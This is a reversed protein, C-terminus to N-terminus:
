KKLIKLTSVESGANMRLIYMGTGLQHGSDDAGNWSISHSGSPYSGYSLTAVKQGVVSYLSIEVEADTDLNFRITAFDVVPVPFVELNSNSYDFQETGIVIEGDWRLDGLQGSTSSAAMLPTNKFGFDFPEGAIDFAPPTLNADPTAYWDSVMTYNAVPGNTFMVDEALMTAGTGAEDVYAQAAMNFMPTVIISDPQQDAYGADTFISNNSITIDQVVGEISDVNIVGRSDDLEKGLVGCDKFISNTIVAKYVQGVDMARRGTNVVTNHDFHFLQMTGGGDRILRSGINYFTSNEIWITKVDNGRDDIVRGNDYDQDMNSVNCNKLIVSINDADLRFPAQTDENLLCDELTIVAFDGKVRITNKNRAGLEDTNSIDLGILTLDDRPVFLRASENGDDVAPYLKPKVTAGEEAIITLPFRNEIEGMSLYYGGDGLIYITYPDVRDGTATTDGFIADNITGVGQEITIYRQDPMTADWRPDGLPGDDTDGMALPRSNYGFDFPEGTIDFAPPTLDADPTTYWDSVMTYNPAPGKTFMVDEALMTGETVAEDVFAQAAMNFMPAELITDPQQDAYGADTFSSNNSILIDQTVGEISDVNILGRTDTTDKGLQGCDKLLNNTIIAAYVQGVDMVRRGTNVVTNHDFYFYNMSGGGDRILRSGINYITSNEIWITDVQNGRDDIVRGNDYDQDMNSIVCNKIIISINEGDLRFPAQTDENLSCDELYIRANDGKVRITNKNRAGLEDTNSIDLGILTLDNRPVFLRSSENGDDVAPYLKPKVAAGDAAVISLPFSFDIEGTSLYFGGDSLVYVTTSDVRDGTETTDSFIAENLTGVGQVVEVTRQALISASLGLLLAMMMLSSMTKYIKKM